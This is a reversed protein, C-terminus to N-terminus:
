LMSKVSPWYKLLDGKMRIQVAAKKPVCDRGSDESKVKEDNGANALSKYLM